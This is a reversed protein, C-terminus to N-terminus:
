SGAEHLLDEATLRQLLVLTFSEFVGLENGNAERLGRAVLFLELLDRMREVLVVADFLFFSEILSVVSELVQLLRLLELLLAVLRALGGDLRLVLDDDVCEHHELQWVDFLLKLVEQGHRGLLRDLLGHELSEMEVVQESFLAACEYRM